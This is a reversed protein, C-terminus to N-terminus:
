LDVAAKQFYELPVHVRGAYFAAGILNFLAMLGMWKLAMRKEQIDWGYLWLGHSIFVLASLGSTSYM